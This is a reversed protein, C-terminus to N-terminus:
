IVIDYNFMNNKDVVIKRKDKPKAAGFNYNMNVKTMRLNGGRLHSYSPQLYQPQANTYFNYVLSKKTDADTENGFLPHTRPYLNYDGGAYVEGSSEGRWFAPVNFVGDNYSSPNAQKVYDSHLFDYRLDALPFGNVNGFDKSPSKSLLETMLSGKQM